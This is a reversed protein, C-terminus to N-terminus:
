PPDAPKRLRGFATSIASPLELAITTSGSEVLRALVILAEQAADPAPLWLPRLRLGTLVAIARYASTLEATAAKDGEHARTALDVEDGHFGVADEAVQTVFRRFEPTVM